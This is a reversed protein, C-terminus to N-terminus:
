VTSSRRSRSQRDYDVLSRGNLRLVDFAVFSVPASRRRASVLGALPYFDSPLGAGAVLEGDLVCEVGLEGLVALEPM